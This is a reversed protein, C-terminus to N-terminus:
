FLQDLPSTKRAATWYTTANSRRLRLLDKGLVRFVLGLPTILLVFILVLVVRAVVQSLWFGVRTSIRYYGRFWGPRLCATAAAAALLILALKWTSPKLIHRWCLLSSIVALGLLTLLTSERWERPDEKLRLKM